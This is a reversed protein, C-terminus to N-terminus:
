VRVVKGSGSTKSNINKAAGKYYVNGSGSVKADISKNANVKVNGSGSIKAFVDNCSVASCDINGSGSISADINNTSKGKLDVNGSGSVAVAMENFTDFGLKINGSGSLSVETKGSNSFAGDGNINGSGSLNLLTLKSLSVNVMIKSTPKLSVGKKTRIVLNGKEVITEIYPLLNEDAEVTTSNSNGYNMQVNMPGQASVGTYGSVNRTEKKVQGNGTVTEWAFSRFTILVALLFLLKRM